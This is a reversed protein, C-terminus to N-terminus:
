TAVVWHLWCGCGGRGHRENCQAVCCSRLARHQRQRTRRDRGDDTLRDGGFTMGQDGQDADAEAKADAACTEVKGTGNKLDVIWSQTKGGDSTLDYRYVAGVKKILTADAKVKDALMKFVATAKFDATM